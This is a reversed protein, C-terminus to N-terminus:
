ADTKPSPVGPGNRLGRAVIKCFTEPTFLRPIDAVRMPSRFRDAPVESLYERLRKLGAETLYGKEEFAAEPLDGRADELIKGRPIKVKFARELGFVFDLFDISEANLGEILSVGLEV